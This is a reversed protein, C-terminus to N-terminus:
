NFQWRIRINYIPNRSNSNIPLDGTPKSYELSVAYTRDDTLQTGITVSSLSARQSVSRLETRANDIVIYPEIRKVIGLNVPQLYRWEVEAAYGRDGQAQGEPYGRAFRQGGYRVQEASPLVDDSWFGHLRSQVQWRVSPRYRWLLETNFYNFHVSESGQRTGSADVLENKNNGVDIGQKLGINWSTLSQRGQWQWRSYAEFASYRLKKKIEGTSGNTSLQYVANENLYHVRGGLWWEAHKSLTMPYSLGLRLRERQKDEEFNIPIDSVFFQDDNTSKFHDVAGELQWGDVGLNQQYHLAYFREITSDPLLASVTLMDGYSTLSQSTVSGFIQNSENQSKDFAITPEFTKKSVQEVRITTAGSATKPRPVQIRFQYGPTAKMLASYREFTSRSLPKENLMKDIYRQLRKEIHRDEVDIESRAIYGEVLVIVVKGAKLQQQQGSPIQAYSLPYGANIYKRTISDLTSLLLDRSAPQGIIPLVLDALEDLEFVTGGQFQVDQILGIDTTTSTETASVDPLEIFKKQPEDSIDIAPEEVILPPEDAISPLPILLFALVLTFIRQNSGSRVHKMEHCTM